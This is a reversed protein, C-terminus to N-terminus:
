LRPETVRVEIADSGGRRQFPQPPTRGTTDAQGISTLKTGPYYHALIQDFTYNFPPNALAKAGVQCLGIGHGWGKGKFTVTGDPATEITFLTSRIADRGVLSRLKGGDISISGKAGAFDVSLARGSSSTKTVAVKQLGEAEKFGSAILKASLEALTYTKSWTAHPTGAPETVMVLYPVNGRHVEAYCETVGGCDACYMTSALRGDYTLVQGATALVARQRSPTERLTGDYVQCHSSDCLDYGSSAHKGRSQVTYNRAAVAQAKLAEIPYSSPMEGALVGVLYDEIRVTNVLLLCGSKLSVELSGHYQKGPKGPSDVSITGALDKPIISVSAGIELTTGNPRKLTMTKQSASITVPELNTCSVPTEKSGAQTVAYDSSALVTIQKVDKFRMLGVRISQLSTAANPEVADAACAFALTLALIVVSTLQIRRRRMPM